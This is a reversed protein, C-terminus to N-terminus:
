KAFLSGASRRMTPTAARVDFARGTARVPAIARPNGKQARGVLEIFQDCLGLGTGTRFGNKAFINAAVASACMKFKVSVHMLFMVSVVIRVFTEAIPFMGDHFGALTPRLLKAEGQAM